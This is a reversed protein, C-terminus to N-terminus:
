MHIDIVRFNTINSNNPYYYSALINYQPNSHASVYPITSWNDRGTVIVSHTWTGYYPKYYQIVDGKQAYSYNAGYNTGRGSSTAWSYFTTVQIWALSGNYWKSDTPIGGNRIAKSVFNTCDQGSYDESSYVNNLAWQAAANGDYVASVALKNSSLALQNIENKEKNTKIQNELEKIDKGLNKLKDTDNKIKQNIYKLYEDSAELNYKEEIDKAKEFIENIDKEVLLKNNEKRLYIIHNETLGSDVDAGKYKFKVVNDVNVIISDDKNEISNINIDVNYSKIQGATKTWNVMIKSHIENYTELESNPLIYENKIVKLDKQQELSNSFYGVLTEKLLSATKEDKITLANVTTYPVISFLLMFVAVISILKKM